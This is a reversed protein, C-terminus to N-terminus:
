NGGNQEVLATTTSIKFGKRKGVVYVKFRKIRTVDSPIFCSRGDKLLKPTLENGNLDVFGVAKVCNKWESSFTFSAKLYGETGPVLDEFDCTPSPKLIQGEVIFDLTRM